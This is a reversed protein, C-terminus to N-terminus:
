QLVVEVELFVGPKGRAVAGVGKTGVARHLTLQLEDIILTPRPARKAAGHPREEVALQRKLLQTCDGFSLCRLPGLQSAMRTNTHVGSRIIRSSSRPARWPALDEAPTM